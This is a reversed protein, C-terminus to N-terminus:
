LTRRFFICFRQARFNRSYPVWSFLTVYSLHSILSYRHSLLRQILCKHSSYSREFDRILFISFHAFSGIMLFTSIWIHNVYISITTVVDFSLYPYVPCMYMVQSIYSLLLSLAALALALQLHFSTRIWRALTISSTQKLIDRLNHGFSLWFSRYIHASWLLLVGLAVHHHSVDTLPLSSSAPLLHCSFSLLATGYSTKTGYIHSYSDPFKSSFSWDGLSLHELIDYYSSTGLNGTVGRSEPISVHILHGSWLLSSAGFVSGIHFNLRISASGFILYLYELYTVSSNKLFLTRLTSDNVVGFMLSLIALIELALTTAYLQHNSSFGLSLLWNYIGSFSSNATFASGSVDAHPDWVSHAVPTFIIPNSYWITYNGSWGIHFINGALWLFIISLHGWHSKFLVLYIQLNSRSQCSGEFDHASGIFDIFFLTSSQKYM